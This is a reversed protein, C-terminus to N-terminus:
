RGPSLKQRKGEKHQSEARKWRPDSCTDHPCPMYFIHGEGQAPQSAPVPETRDWHAKCFPQSPLFTSGEPKLLASMEMSSRVHVRVGEMEDTQKERREGGESKKGASTGGRNAVCRQETHVQLSSDCINAGGGEQKEREENTQGSRM